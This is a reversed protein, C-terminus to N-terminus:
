IFDVHNTYHDDVWDFFNLGYNILLIKLPTDDLDIIANGNSRRIVPYITAIGRDYAANPNIQVDTVVFPHPYKFVNLLSGRQPVHINYLVPQKYSNFLRLTTKLTKVIPITLKKKKNILTRFRPKSCLANLYRNSRCLAEIEPYDLYQLYEYQVDDSISAFDM